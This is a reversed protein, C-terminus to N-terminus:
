NRFGTGPQQGAIREEQSVEKRRGASGSCRQRVAAQGGSAAGCGRPAIRIPLVYQFAQGQTEMM